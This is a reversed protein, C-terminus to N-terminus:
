IDLFDAAVEASANDRYYAVIALLEGDVERHVSLGLKM